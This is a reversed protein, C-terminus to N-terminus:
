ATSRTHIMTGIIAGVGGIALFSGIVAYWFGIDSHGIAWGGASERYALVAMFLWVVGIFLGILRKM